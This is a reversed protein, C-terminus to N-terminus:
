HEEKIAEQILLLTEEEQFGLQKMKEFFDKIHESALETKMQKLMKEDETIFRGSTRQSYVLGSRELESLAKQMTNPNVAADLALDRVSPLKDGPKYIGAIIDQQIKEMLQLYIPRENDLDWPM